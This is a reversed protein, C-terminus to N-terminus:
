HDLLACLVPREPFGEHHPHPGSMEVISVGSDDILFEIRGADITLPAGQESRLMGILGLQVLRASGDPEFTTFDPGHSPGSLAYGTESNSVTLTLNWVFQLRTLNDGEDVTAIVTVTGEQEYLLDYGQECSALIVPGFAGDINPIVSTRSGAHGSFHPSAVHPGVPQDARACAAATLATLLMALHHLPRM